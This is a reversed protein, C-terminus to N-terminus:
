REIGMAEDDDSEPIRKDVWEVPGLQLGLQSEVQLHFISVM